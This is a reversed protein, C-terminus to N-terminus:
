SIVCRERLDSIARSILMKVAATSRQMVGAIDALGLGGYYRLRLVEVRDLSLMTIFRAVCDLVDRLDAQADPDAKETLDPATEIKDGATDSRDAYQRRHFDACKHRAIGFLWPSFGRRAQYRQVGELAALFTQATLDEADAISGTRAYCYRYVPVVFRRYLVDFADHDSKALEILEEDAMDTFARM